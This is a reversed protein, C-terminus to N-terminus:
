EVDLFIRNGNRRIYYSAVNSYCVAYVRYNRNGWRIMWRTPIKRGYGSATQGSAPADREFLEVPEYILRAQESDLLGHKLEAKM